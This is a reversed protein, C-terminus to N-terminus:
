DTETFSPLTSTTYMDDKLMVVAVAVVALADVRLADLAYRGVRCGYLPRPSGGKKQAQMRRPPLSRCPRHLLALPTCATSCELALPSPDCRPPMASAAQPHPCHSPRAGLSQARPSSRPVGSARLVPAACQVCAALRLPCLVSGLVPRSPPRPRCWPVLCSPACGEVWLVWRWLWRVGRCGCCGGGGGGCVGVAVVAVAGGGRWKRVARGGGGGRKARRRTGRWCWSAVPLGHHWGQGQPPQKMQHYM